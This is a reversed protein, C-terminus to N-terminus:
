AETGTGLTDDKEHTTPNLRSTNQQHNKHLYENSIINQLQKTTDTKSKSDSLALSLLFLKSPNRVIWKSFFFRSFFQHYDKRSLNPLIPMQDSLSSVLNPHWCKMEFHRLELGPGVENGVEQEYVIQSAIPSSEIVKDEVKTLFGAQARM